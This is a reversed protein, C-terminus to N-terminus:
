NNKGFSPGTSASATSGLQLKWAIKPQLNPNKFDNRWLCLSNDISICFFKNEEKVHLYLQSIIRVMLHVFGLVPVKMMSIMRVVITDLTVFM